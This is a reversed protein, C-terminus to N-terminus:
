KELNLLTSPRTCGRVQERDREGKKSLPFIFFVRVFTIVDQPFHTEITRTCIAKTGRRKHKCAFTSAPALARAVLRQDRNSNSNEGVVATQCVRVSNSHTLVLLFLSTFGLFLIFTLTSFFLTRPSFEPVSVSSYINLFASSLLLILSFRSHKYYGKTFYLFIQLLYNVNNTKSYLNYM